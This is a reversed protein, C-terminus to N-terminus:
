SSSNQCYFACFTDRLVACFVSSRPMSKTQLEALEQPPKASAPFSPKKAGPASWPPLRGAEREGCTLMVDYVGPVDTKVAFTNGYAIPDDAKEALFNEAAPLQDGAEM